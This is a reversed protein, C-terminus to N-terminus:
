VPLCSKCPQHSYVVVRNLVGVKRLDETRAACRPQAPHHTLRSQWRFHQEIERDFHEVKRAAFQCWRRDLSSSDPKARRSPAIHRSFLSTLNKPLSGLRPPSLMAAFILTLREVQGHGAVLSM